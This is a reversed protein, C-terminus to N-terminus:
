NVPKVGPSKRLAEKAASIEKTLSNAIRPVDKSQSAAAKLFDNMLSAIRELRAPIRHPM